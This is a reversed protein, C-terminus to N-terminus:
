GMFKPYPINHRSFVINKFETMRKFFRLEFGLVFGFPIVLLNIVPHPLVVIIGFICFIMKLMAKAQNVRMDVYQTLLKHRSYHPAEDVPIRLQISEDEARWNKTSKTEERGM